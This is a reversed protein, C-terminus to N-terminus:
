QEEPNQQQQQQQNSASAAAQEAQQKYYTELEQPTFAVINGTTNTNENTNPPTQTPNRVEATNVEAKQLNQFQQYLREYEQSSVTPTATPASSAPQQNLKSYDQQIYVPTHTSTGDASQHYHQAIPGNPVDSRQNTEQPTGVQDNIDRISVENPKNDEQDLKTLVRLLAKRLRPDLKVSPKFNPSLGTDDPYAPNSDQTFVSSTVLALCIFSFIMTDTRFSM